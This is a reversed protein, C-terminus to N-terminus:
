TQPNPLTLTKLRVKTFSVLAHYAEEESPYSGIYERKGTLYSPSYALWNNYPKQLYVGPYKSSFKGRSKKRHLHWVQHKTRFFAEDDGNIYPAVKMYADFVVLEDKDWVISYSRGKHCVRSFWTRDKNSWYVGPFRSSRGKYARGSGQSYRLNDLRVNLLNNDKFVLYRNEPLPGKFTDAVLQHVMRSKRVSNSDVLSVVLKGSAVWPKLIKPVKRRRERGGYRSLLSRVQGRTSVDYRGVYDFVPGWLEKSM